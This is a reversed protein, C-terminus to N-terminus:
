LQNSMFFALKKGNVEYKLKVLYFGRPQMLAVELDKISNNKKFKLQNGIGKNTFRM